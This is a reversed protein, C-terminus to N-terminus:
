APNGILGDLVEVPKAEEFDDLGFLKTAVLHVRGDNEIQLELEATAARRTSPNIAHQVHVGPLEREERGFRLVLYPAFIGLRQNGRRVHGDRLGLPDITAHLEAPCAVPCACM